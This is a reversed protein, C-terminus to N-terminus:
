KASNAPHESVTTVTDSGVVTSPSQRGEVLGMGRQGFQATGSENGHSDLVLVTPIDQFGTVM